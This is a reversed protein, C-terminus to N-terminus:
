YGPRFITVAATVVPDDSVFSFNSFVEEIRNTPPGTFHTALNKDIVVAEKLFILLEELRDLIRCKLIQNQLIRQSLLYLIVESLPEHFPLRKTQKDSPVTHQRSPGIARM